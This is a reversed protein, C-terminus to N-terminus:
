SMYSDHTVDNASMFFFHFALLLNFNIKERFYNANSPVPYCSEEMSM